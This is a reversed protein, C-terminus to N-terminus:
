QQPAAAEKILAGREESLVLLAFRNIPQHEARRCPTTQPLKRSQRSCELPGSSPLMSFIKIRRAKAKTWAMIFVVLQAGSVYCISASPPRPRTLVLGHGDQGHQPMKPFVKSFGPTLARVGPSAFFARVTLLM